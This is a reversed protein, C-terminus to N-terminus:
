SDLHAPPRLAPRTPPLADASRVELCRALESFFPRRRWRSRDGVVYLRRRARTVAVNLLNPRSAAWDLAGDRRTPRATTFPSRPAAGLFFSNLFDFDDASWQRSRATPASRVIAAHRLARGDAPWGCTARARQLESAVIGGDIPPGLRFGHGALRSGEEDDPLLAM